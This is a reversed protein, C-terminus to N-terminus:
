DSHCKHVNVKKSFSKFVEELNNLAVYPIRNELCFAKVIPSVYCYHFNSMNPFLHHEIQHNIGGFWLTWMINDNAFNGSNRIQRLAWNNGDYRNEYTEHLDHDGMVNVFYLINGTAVYLISSFLGLKYLLYLKSTMILIEPWEYYPTTQTPLLIPTKKAVELRNTLASYIYFLGQGLNQGPFLGHTILAHNSSSVGYLKQDPDLNTGTYTHHYYVHHYFWLLHNWGNWSNLARSIANNILPNTSIAYHSADHLVNFIISSETASSLLTFVMKIFSYETSFARWLFYFYAIGLLGSWVYWQPPAKISARDKFNTTTMIRQVLERYTSFDVSYPEATGPIEYKALTQKLKDINSFAHYSEFLATCDPLDKTKEIIEAGGPHSHAFASLDHKKGYISWM